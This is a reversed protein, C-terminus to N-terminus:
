RPDELHSQAARVHHRLNDCRRVLVDASERDVITPGDLLWREHLSAARAALEALPTDAPLGLRDYVARGYEGILRLIQERDARSLVTTATQIRQLLGLEALGLENQYATVMATVGDLTQRDAPTLHRRLSREARILLESTLRTKLLDARHAFHDTLRGRLGTIGSAQQLRERLEAVTGVKDDRLLSAAIKLGYGTFSAYLERRRDGSLPLGRDPRMFVQASLLSGELAGQPLGALQRLDDLDADDLGAATEALKGCVPEVEFLMSRVSPNKLMLDRIQRAAVFPDEAGPWLDEVKTLVGTTTVPSQFASGPGLFAQLMEEDTASMGRKSMVVILADAKAAAEVTEAELDARSKRLFELTVASDEVWASDLGATDILDFGSLYPQDTVVDLYDISALLDQNDDRRAAYQELKDVSTVGSTGDKFHVTITPPSGYRIHNVSYSLELTGTPTLAQGILANVLTSKGQCVRGVVAVRMRAELLATREALLARVPALAPVGDLRTIATALTQGFREALEGTM